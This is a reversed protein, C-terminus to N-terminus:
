NNRFYEDDDKFFEDFFAQDGDMPLVITLNREFDIWDRSLQMTTIIKALHERLAPHGIEETLWQHHKHARRGPSIYPNNRELERVLGPHLRRYVIDRTIRGVELPKQDGAKLDAYDWRKLRFLNTYYDDPFTKTWGNLKDSLYKDLIEALALRPRLYQYGTAEDVLAVIAVNALGRMVAEAAEGIAKYRVISLRGQKRAELIADCLQGLLLASYGKAVGGTPMTFEIPSSLRASLDQAMSPNDAILMAFSVLRTAGGGTAMGIAAQLGGVTIVRRDEDEPVAGEELVYCPIEVNGIRLPRKGGCLARPLNREENDMQWRSSAAKRAIESREEPTLRSAREIGGKSSGQKSLARAADSIRIRKAM